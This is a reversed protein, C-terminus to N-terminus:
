DGNRAALDKIHAISRECVEKTLQGIMAHQEVIIECLKEHPLKDLPTGCWHAVTPPM